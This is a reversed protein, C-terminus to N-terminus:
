PRPSTEEFYRVRAVDLFSTTRRTQGEALAGMATQFGLRRMVNRIHTTHTHRQTGNIWLEFKDPRVAVTVRTWNTYDHAVHKPPDQSNKYCPDGTALYHNTWAMGEGQSFKAGMEFFDLEGEPWCVDTGWTLAVARTGWRGPEGAAWGVRLIWEYIGFKRWYTSGADFQGLGGSAWDFTRTVGNKTFSQPPELKRSWVRVYGGWTPDAQAGTRIEVNERIRPGQSTGNWGAVTGWGYQLQDCNWELYLPGRNPVSPAAGITGAGPDLTRVTLVPSWARKGTADVPVNGALDVPSTRLRYESNSNRGTVDLVTGPAVVFGAQSWTAGADSSIDVRTGAYGSTVRLDTTAPDVVTAFTVRFGTATVNSATPADAQVPPPTIDATSPTVATKVLLLPSPETVNGANDEATYYFWHNTDATLGVARYTLSSILGSINVYDEATATTKTMWLRYGRLGTGGAEDTAASMTLVVSHDTLESFALALPPNPTPALDDVNPSEPDELAELREEVRARWSSLEVLAGLNDQEVDAELRQPTGGNVRVWLLSPGFPDGEPGLFDRLVGARDTTLASGLIGTIGDMERLDAPITGAVDTFVTVTATGSNLVPTGKPGRQTVVRYADSPFRRRTM